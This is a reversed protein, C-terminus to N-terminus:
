SSIYILSGKGLPYEQFNMKNRQITSPSLFFVFGTRFCNEQLKRM